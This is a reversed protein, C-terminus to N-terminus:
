VRCLPQDKEVPEGLRVLVDLGVSSDIHDTKVRRGGGLVIITHGLKEADIACLYGSRSAIFPTAPAVPRPADLNGGQASVMTRFKELARGSDLEREQMAVAESATRAVGSMLLTETGLALILERLDPPGKGSLTEVAENVEVANGVMRGNPQNM